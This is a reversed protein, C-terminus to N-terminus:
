KKFLNKIKQWFSPSNKEVTLNLNKLQEKQSTTLNTPTVVKTIVYMDGKIKSRVNPAGKGRIKFKSSTQTGEPIKLIVDGYPTPVEIEAGLAAQTFSIPVEAYIDDGDRKFFDHEKVDFLIYLDGNPGGNAGKNGLGELRIQQGTVIGEPVKVDVEKTVKIKGEGYCKDCKNKIEKGTGHCKPCTTQTQTRGFLTTQEVIVRGRGGCKSCTVIDSASKAGTGHCNPCDDYTQVKIKETKGFISDLFSIEMRKQIDAGKRPANSNRRQGGGFFSSFIDGLDVDEFGSFGSFGGQNFGAQQSQFGFRDYQARKQSDSLVEYAEQVEKFKAEADPAKNLDPHYQKALKRYAQKIEDDSATKAVGLVEYYDRKEAM